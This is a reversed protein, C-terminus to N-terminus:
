SCKFKANRVAQCGHIIWYEQRIQNLLHETPPHHYSRHMENIILEALEHRSDIIKPHQAHHPISQAKQLRGSVVLYGDELRPDLSKLRSQKHIEQGRKFCRMEEGFSEAQAKKILYNQASRLELATLPGTMRAEEKVQTNNAFQRAYTVVRRLKTLSAYKRWGLMPETEQYVGAWKLKGESKDVEEQPAEVKSDLWLKAPKLLFGPGGYYPHNM